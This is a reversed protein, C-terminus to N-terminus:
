HCRYGITNDLFICTINGWQTSQVSSAPSGSTGNLPVGSASNITLNRTNWTGYYDLIQVTNNVASAPLTVTVAVASTNAAINHGAVAVMSAATVTWGYAYNTAPNILSWTGAGAANYQVQVQASSGPIDGLNLPIGNSKVIVYAGTGINFTPTTTINAGTAGFTLTMGDALTPINPVYSATIVDATGGADAYPLSFGAPIYAATSANIGTVGILVVVLAIGFLEFLKKM